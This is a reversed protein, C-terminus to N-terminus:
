VALFSHRRLPRVKCNNCWMMQSGSQAVLLGQNGMPLPTVPGHCTPCQLAGGRESNSSSHSSFLRCHSHCPAPAEIGPAPALPSAFHPPHQACQILNSGKALLATAAPAVVRRALMSAVPEAASRLAMKLAKKPTTRLGSKRSGLFCTQQRFRTEDARVSSHRCTQDHTAVFKRERPHPRHHAM